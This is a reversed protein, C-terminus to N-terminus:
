RAGDGEKSGYTGALVKALGRWIDAALEVNLSEQVQAALEQMAQVGEAQQGALIQLQARLAQFRIMDRFSLQLQQDDLEACLARADDVRGEEFALHARLTLLQQKQLETGMLVVVAEVEDLRTRARDTLAPTIQLYLSAAALRLRLWLMLDDQGHLERLARELLVQAEAYDNQRVRVTAAAWLAEIHATGGTQETLGILEDAHVRADQLRGSEAEASVIAHLAAARDTISLGDALSLAEAAHRRASVADGLLRACMSLRTRARVRLAPTRLEDSLECLETLLEFEQQHRGQNGRARALLWLAQWRLAPDMKADGQLADALSDVLEDDSASTAAALLHALSPAEDTAEFASIPVGLKRALQEVVRETPPRAGSELRSLYGTSMSGEALAVQSLGRELRLARLRMGFDPQTLM